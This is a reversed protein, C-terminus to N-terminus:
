QSAPVVSTGSKTDFLPKTINWCAVGVLGRGPVVEDIQLRDGGEIVRIMSPSGVHARDIKRVNMCASTGGRIVVVLLRQRLDHINHHVSEFELANKHNTILLTKNSHHTEDAPVGFQIFPENRQRSFKVEFDM